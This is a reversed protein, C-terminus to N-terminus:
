FTAIIFFMEGLLIIRMQMAINAIQDNPLGPAVFIHVFLSAFIFLVVSIVFFLTLSVILLSSAFYYGEKEEKKSLYQSFVPIFASSLAGSIVIQFLSDPLSTAYYYLGTTSVGYIGLLLRQRILGLVQSLLVTAMIIFAASLINTQQRLLLTLGRQLLNKSFNVM